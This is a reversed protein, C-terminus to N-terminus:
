AHRDEEEIYSEIALVLSEVNGPDLARGKFMAVAAHAVLEVDQNKARLKRIGCPGDTPMECRGLGPGWTCGDFEPEDMSPDAPAHSYFPCRPGTANKKLQAIELLMRGEAEQLKTIQVQQWVTTRIVGQLIEADTSYSSAVPAHCEPCYRVTGNGTDIANGKWCAPHKGAFCNIGQPPCHGAKRDEDSQSCGECGNHTNDSM